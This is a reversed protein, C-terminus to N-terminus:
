ALRPPGDRTKEIGEHIAVQGDLSQSRKHTQGQGGIRAAVQSWLRAGTSTSAVRKERLTRAASFAAVRSASVFPDDAIRERWRSPPSSAVGSLWAAPHSLSTVPWGITIRRCIM